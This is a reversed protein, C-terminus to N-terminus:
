IGAIEILVDRTTTTSGVRVFRHTGTYKKFAWAPPMGATLFSDINRWNIGDISVDVTITAVGGVTIIFTSVRRIKVNKFDIVLYKDPEAALWSQRRSYDQKPM